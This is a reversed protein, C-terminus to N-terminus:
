HSQGIPSNFNSISEQIPFQNNGLLVEFYSNAMKKSHSNHLRNGCNQLAKRCFRNSRKMTILHHAPLDAQLLVAMLEFVYNSIFAPPSIIFNNKFAYFSFHM